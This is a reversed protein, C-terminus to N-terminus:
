GCSAVHLPRLRRFEVFAYAALAIPVAVIAATGRRRASLDERLRDLEFAAIASGALAVWTFYRLALMMRLVPARLAIESVPWQGIAIALGLLLPALLAIESKRRRSGPRLIALAVAWGVIGFYGQAM